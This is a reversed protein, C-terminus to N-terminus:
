QQCLSHKAPQPICGAAVPRGPVPICAGICHAAYMHTAQISYSKITGEQIGLHPDAVSITKLFNCNSVSIFHLLDSRIPSASHTASNAYNLTRNTPKAGAFLLCVSRSAENSVRSKWQVLPAEVAGAPSRFSFECIENSEFRHEM